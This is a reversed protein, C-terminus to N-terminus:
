KFEGWNQWFFFFGLYSVSKYEYHYEFVYDDNIPPYFVSDLVCEDWLYNTEWFSMKLVCESVWVHKSESPKKKEEQQRKLKNQRQKVASCLATWM